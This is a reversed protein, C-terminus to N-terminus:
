PEEPPERKVPEFSIKAGHKQLKERLELAEAHEEDTRYRDSAVEVYRRADESLQSAREVGFFVSNLESGTLLMPLVTGQEATVDGTEPDQKLTWVEDAECGALVLPSHTTVIFQMKPFTRKLGEVIQSQWKPHLHLDLEDVLVLGEMDALPVEEGADLWVHGIIDAVLSIVAQYGQSLWVAPLKLKGTGVDFEFSHANDVDNNGNRGRFEIGHLNPAKIHEVLAERLITAFRGAKAVDYTDSFGTGMPLFYPDFLSRLRQRQLPEGDEKRLPTAIVRTTGYAAVFWGPARTEIAREITNLQQLRQVLATLQELGLQPWDRPEHLGSEALVRKKEDLHMQNSAENVIGNLSFGVFSAVPEGKVIFGVSISGEEGSRRDFYAIPNDVLRNASASGALALAIARLLTTKCTGNEGVFVTWMRPTGDGRVFSANLDRM